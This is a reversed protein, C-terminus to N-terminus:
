RARESAFRAVLTLVAALLPAFALVFLDGALHGRAITTGSGLAVFLATAACLETKARPSV